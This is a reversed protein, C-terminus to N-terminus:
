CKYGWYQNRTDRFYMIQNGAVGKEVLYRVKSMRYEFRVDHYVGLANREYKKMQEKTDPQEQILSPRRSVNLSDVDFISRRPENLINPNLSMLNTELPSIVSSRRSANKSIIEAEHMDNLYADMDTETKLINFGNRILKEIMNIPQGVIHILSLFNANRCGSLLSDFLEEYRKDTLGNPFQELLVELLKECGVRAKLGPLFSRENLFIIKTFCDQIEQDTGLVPLKRAEL